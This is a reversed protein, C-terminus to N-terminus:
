PLLAREVFEVFEDVVQKSSFSESKFWRYTWQCIGAIALMTLRSDVQRFTGDEVGETIIAEIYDAFKLRKNNIAKYRPERRLSGEQFFVAFAEFNENQVRILNSVIHRLRVDPTDGKVSSDDMAEMTLDIASECIELLLDTKSPFYYYVAAKTVKLEAAVDEMTTNDYGKKRFLKAATDLIRSRRLAYDADNRVRAM